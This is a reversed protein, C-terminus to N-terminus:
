ARRRSHRSTTSIRRVYIAHIYLPAGCSPCKGEIKGVYDGRRFLRQTTYGCKYCKLVVITQEEERRKRPLSRLALLPVALLILLVALMAIYAIDDPKMPSGWEM